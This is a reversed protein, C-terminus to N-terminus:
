IIAYETTTAISEHWPRSSPWLDHTMRTVPWSFSPDCPDRTAFHSGNNARNWLPIMTSTWHVRRRSASLRGTAECYEVVLFRLSDHCCCPGSGGGTGRHENGIGGWWTYTTLREVRLGSCDDSRRVVSYLEACLSRHFSPEAECLIRMWDVRRRLAGGGQRYQTV